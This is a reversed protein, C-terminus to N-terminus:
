LPGLSEEGLRVELRNGRKDMIFYGREDHDVFEFFSPHLLLWDDSPEYQKAERIV